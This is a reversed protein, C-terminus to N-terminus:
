CRAGPLHFNTILADVARFAYPPRVFLRTVGTGPAPARPADGRPRATTAAELTRASTTGVAVIRGGAARTRAIQESTEAPVEWPEAHLEGRDVDEERLPRFTGLGVHLTVTCFGIGAARLADLLPEDFHLGATPAAASGQTRAYVTQYRELDAADAERRLYPPLPPAGHRAMVTLPDPAVEVRVVGDVAEDVVTASAGEGITLM